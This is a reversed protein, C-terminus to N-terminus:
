QLSPECRRVEYVRGFKEVKPYQKGPFFRARVETPNTCVSKYDAEGKKFYRRFKKDQKKRPATGDMIKDYWMEFLRVGAKALDEYLEYATINGIPMEYVDIIDGSDFGYDMYHLTVGATHGKMIQWYIPDCGAFSPLSGYHINVCKYEDIIRKCIRYPYQCSVVIPEDDKKSNKIVSKYLRKSHDNGFFIIM